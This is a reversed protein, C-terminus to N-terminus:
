ATPSGIGPKAARNRRHIYIWAPTLGLAVLPLWPTLAVLLLCITQLFAQLAEWSRSFTSGISSVFTPTQPPVYSKIEQIEVTITSLSTLNALLRLRGEQQEIESRVRSLEQEIKLIDELKGTTKVLHELLRNEEVKKNKLRADLDYYEETVDKSDTRNKEPYGLKVVEDVFMELSDNPVRIRWLGRRPSGASGGTEAQAVYAGRQNRIVSKLATESKAFDEVVLRIEATRVIKRQIAEPEAGANGAAPAPKQSLGMSPSAQSPEIQGSSCGASLFLMLLCTAHRM